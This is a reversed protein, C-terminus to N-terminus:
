RPVHHPRGYRLDRFQTRKFSPTSNRARTRPASRECPGWVSNEVKSVWPMRRHDSAMPSMCRRARSCFSTFGMSALTKASRKSTRLEGISFGLRGILVRHLFGFPEADGSWDPPWVETAFTDSVIASAGSDWLYRAMEETHEIGPAQLARSLQQRTMADQRRYWSLFGTRIVLACGPSYSLGAAERVRELDDVTISVSGRTTDLGPSLAPLDLLVGRTVIGRRAVHDITNFGGTTVDEVTRDNYFVNPGAAIHALSDWQSAIQPFYNDLADDFGEVDPSVPRTATSAQGTRRIATCRSSRLQAAEQSRTAEMASGRFQRRSHVPRHPQPLPDAAPLRMCPADGRLPLARVTFARLISGMATPSMPGPLVGHNLGDVFTDLDFHLHMLLRAPLPPAIVCQDPARLSGHPNLVYGRLEGCEVKGPLMGQLLGAGCDVPVTSGQRWARRRSAEGGALGCPATRIRVSNQSNSRM